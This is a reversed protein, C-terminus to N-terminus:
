SHQIQWRATELRDCLRLEAIDLGDPLRDWRERDWILLYLRGEALLGLWSDGGTRAHSELWAAQAPRLRARPVRVTQRRRSYQGVKVELWGRLVRHSFYIDPVGLGAYTEMRQVLAGPLARRLYGVADRERAM